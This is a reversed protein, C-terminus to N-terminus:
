MLFIYPAEAAVKQSLIVVRLRRIKKASVQVHSRLKTEIETVFNVQFQLCHHLYFLFPFVLLFFLFV